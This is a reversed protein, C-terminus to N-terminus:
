KIAGIRRIHTNVNINILANKYVEEWNGKVKNWIKSNYKEIYERLGILDVSYKDQITRVVKGMEDELSKNFDTEIKELESESLLKKGLYYEKIQGEMSIDMNFVIKEGERDMSVKRELGYIEFDIPHGEKYIVKKGGKLEGRLIKVDSTETPSLMGKFKYDKIVCTGSLSIEKKYKDISLCPLIASGTEDLSKLFENLDVSIISSNRNSNEILGYIYGQLSKEMNPKFKIYDEVKGDSMAILANRNVSPQRQLYDLVEKVVEPYTFLNNGMILLKSHGFSITRSSKSIAKSFADEMSYADVNITKEEAVGGKDPGMQSIDPFAYTINLRKINNDSFPEDPKLKKLEEEKTVEEGTDIGLTSIFAKRDIEVKDWCGVIFICCMILCLLKILKRKRKIFIM